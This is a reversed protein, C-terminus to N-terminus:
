ERDLHNKAQHYSQYFHQKLAESVDPCADVVAKAWILYAERRQIDWGSPPAYAIDNVNCAKDALRILAAGETLLPARQIQLRKREAKPLSDDDSVAAVMEATRAGFVQNLEEFTTETDELTDHLLAAVLIDIDEVCGVESLVKAVQIPHNIYPIPEAGKRRQQRHKCAAFETALLLLKYSM